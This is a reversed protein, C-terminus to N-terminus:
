KCSVERSSMLCKLCNSLCNNHFATMLPKSLIVQDTVPNEVYYLSVLDKVLPTLYQLNPRQSSLHSRMSKGTAYSQTSASSAYYSTKGAARIFLVGM